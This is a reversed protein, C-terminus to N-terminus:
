FNFHEPYREVNTVTHLMKQLVGAGIVNLAFGKPVEAVAGKGQKLGKLFCRVKSLHVEIM